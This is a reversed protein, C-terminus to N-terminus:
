HHRNGSARTGDGLLRHADDHTGEGLYSVLIRRRSGLSPDNCGHDFVALQNRTQLNLDCSVWQPCPVMAVIPVPDLRGSFPVVANRSPEPVLGGPTQAAFIFHLQADHRLRPLRDRFRASFYM